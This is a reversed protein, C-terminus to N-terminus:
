YGMNQNISGSDQLHLQYDHLHFFLHILTNAKYYVREGPKAEKRSASARFHHILSLLCMSPPLHFTAGQVFSTTNM